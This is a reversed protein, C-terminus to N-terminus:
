KPDYRCYKYWYFSSNTSLNIRNTEMFWFLILQKNNNGWFIPIFPVFVKVRLNEFEVQENCRDNKWKISKSTKTYGLSHACLCYSNAQKYIQPTNQCHSMTKGDRFYKIKICCELVIWITTSYSIKNDRCLGCIESFIHFCHERSFIQFQNLSQM